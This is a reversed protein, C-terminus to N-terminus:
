FSVPSAASGDWNYADRANTADNIVNNINDNCNGVVSGSDVGLVHGDSRAYFVSSQDAYHYQVGDSRYYDQYFVYRASSDSSPTCVIWQPWGDLAVATRSFAGAGSGLSAPGANWSGGTFTLVDGNSPSLGLLANLVDALTVEAAEADGATLGALGRRLFYTEAAALAALALFLALSLTAVRGAWRIVPKFAPKM